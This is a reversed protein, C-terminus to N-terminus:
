LYVSVIQATRVQISKVRAPVDGLLTTGPATGLIPLSTLDLHKRIEIHEIGQKIADRLDGATAVVTVSTSEATTSTGSEDDSPTEQQLTRM